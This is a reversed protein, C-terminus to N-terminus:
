YGFSRVARVTYGHDRLGFYQGSGETMVGLIFAFMNADPDLACSWYYGRVGADEHSSGELAGAAPLFMTNGNTGTVLLGNVGNMTTWQISCKEMLEKIQGVSPMCWSSGWNVTAADDESDLKIKHDVTGYSGKTCYKTMSKYSGNCWLYTEWTYDEKPMTEGWAFYCGYQEPSTAGINCTAWLTGSPLGLDVYEHDDQSHSGGGLIIDILVNIDAINVEGDGNVDAEPTYTNGGLIIALVANVDAINVEGDHNVDGQPYDEPMLDDVIQGFYPRWNGDAQYGGATGQPVHLTRGSYNGDHLYFPYTGYSVKSPDTIYSYVDTLSRCEDFAWEGITTVTAPITISKLSYCDRFAHGDITIVRKGMTVEELGSCGYFAWEGISTVSNPIIIGRLSSIDLFAEDGIAKVSNPIVTNQCGAILTNSATEIIANCNGRSDYITNGSEVTINELNVCFRFVAEGFSTVSNPITIDTLNQCGSFVRIGITQVSNPITVGTLSICNMFAFAGITTVTNPITVNVLNSCNEFLRESIVTVTAPITMSTLAVCGRFAGEDISTVSNGFNVSALNECSWFARKGITTVSNPITVSTLGDCGGFAEKGITIVSNPITIETLGSCNSFVLDALHTVANSITLSTLGICNYFAMIGIETVSNPITMNTLGYCDEFAYAGIATVSSPISIDTLGRCSCFAYAGIATVTRPIFSNQCGAILTNSATEIIANCNGRSDYHSNGSAVTLSTLNVCSVFVRDGISTVSKPITLETLGACAYFADKGISTVSNPITVSTVEDCFLFASEGIATVAYTTGGYTVASPITVDGTYEDSYSHTYTGRFTVTAEDGNINYYIGGVEFDHAAAAAPLLLALLLLASTILSKM